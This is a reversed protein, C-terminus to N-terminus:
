CGLVSANAPESAASVVRLARVHDARAGATTRGRRGASRQRLVLLLRLGRSCRAGADARGKAVNPAPQSQLYAHIEALREDPLAQASYAPMTRQGRRVAATFEALALTATAVRPGAATGAGDTGHCAGCGSQAFAAARADAGGSPQAALRPAHAAAGLAVLLVAAKVSARM